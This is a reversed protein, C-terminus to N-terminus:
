STNAKWVITSFLYGCLLFLSLRGASWILLYVSLMWLFTLAIHSITTTIKEAITLPLGMHLLCALAEGGDLSKIPFLNFLGLMLNCIAFYRGYSGAESIWFFVASLLFNTIVGSLSIVLTQKYSLLRGGLSIDAGLTLLKVKRVKVGCVRIAIFHGFEHSAAALLTMLTFTSLEIYAFFAIIAAIIMFKKIM